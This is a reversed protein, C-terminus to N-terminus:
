AHTLIGSTQLHLHVWLGHQQGQLSPTRLPFGVRRGAGSRSSPPFSKGNMGGAVSPAHASGSDCPVPGPASGPAPSGRRGASPSASPALARAPICAPAVQLTPVPACSQSGTNKGAALGRQPPLPSPTHCRQSWTGGPGVAQLDTGDGSNAGVAPVWSPSPHPEWIGGPPIRPLAAM